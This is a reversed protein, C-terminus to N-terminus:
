WSWGGARAPLDTLWLLRRDLLISEDDQGTRLWHAAWCIILIGAMLAAPFMILAFVGIGAIRRMM